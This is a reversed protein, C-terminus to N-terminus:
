CRGPPPPPPPKSGAHPTAPSCPYGFPLPNFPTPISDPGVQTGAGPNEDMWNYVVDDRLKTDPEGVATSELIFHRPPEELGTRGREATRWSGRTYKYYFDTGTALPMTVAYHLGDIREMRIALANWDAIDTSMYVPDTLPTRPPVQAIFKVQVIKGTLPVRGVRALRPALEPNTQAPSLAVAYKHIETPSLYSARTQLKSRSIELAVIMGSSGDFTATAYLRTPPLAAPQRTQADVIAAGPSIRFADGTTFVAFGHQIDLLQGTFQILGATPVPTAPPATQALSGASALAGICCLAFVVFLSRIM